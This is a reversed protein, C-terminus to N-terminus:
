KKEYLNNKLKKIARQVCKKICEETRNFKFAIEKYCYGQMRLLIVEKELNKLRKLLYDVDIKKEIQEWSQDIEEIHCGISHLRCRRVEERNIKQHEKLAIAVLLTLFSGKRQWRPFYKWAILYTRQELEERNYSTHGLRYLWRTFPRQYEHLLTQFELKLEEHYLAALHLNLKM